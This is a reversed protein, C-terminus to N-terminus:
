RGQSVLCCRMSIYRLVVIFVAWSCLLMIMVHVPGIQVPWSTITLKGVFYLAFPIQFLVMVLLMMTLIPKKHFILGITLAVPAMLFPAFSLNMNLANFTFEQGGVTLQPMIRALLQTSMALLVVVVTIFIGTTVALTLASWFRQRRGGSVSLSSYVWLNMLVVMMGPMFFMFNKGDGPIYCLFCPIPLIITFPLIWGWWQQSLTIGFSKYLSGWIYQRLSGTEARSIRFVFFGEVGSSIRMSNPKKKDKEALRTQQFKFLKEKNWVDFAGMWMVGCYRRALNSKGLYSWALFNVLGGLLIMSLPSEVITHEIFVSMNLPKDGLILLPLLAILISWNKFKYVCWAGLWYFVTFTSFASLCAMITKVFNLDPYFLFSLSWLFSLVLGIFFLFKRPINRHGPLCYSFPKTLVDIPLTAIFTSVLLMWLVPASFVGQKNKAVAETIAVAVGFAVSGFFLGLFWFSRKQYLHKLNVWLISM